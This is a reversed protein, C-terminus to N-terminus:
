QSIAFFLMLFGHLAIILAFSTFRMKKAFLTSPVTRVQAGYFQLPQRINSCHNTLLIVVSKNVVKSSQLAPCSAPRTEALSCHMTRKFVSFVM